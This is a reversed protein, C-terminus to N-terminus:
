EVSKLAEIMDVKKLHGHMYVAVVISFVLTIAGSYVYSLPKIERGFMVLDIEATQIIFQSLFYGGFLGVAIGMLTLILNERFIYGDVETDYFGMVKLTAIERIRETININTLNYLVVFALAGACIILIAVVSNLADLMTAMTVVLDDKFNISLVANTELLRSAFEDQEEKTLEGERGGFAMINPEPAEGFIDEYLGKSMYVYHNPYCEVCASVNVNKIDTEEQYVEMGDGASIGLLMSLKEDILVRDEEFEYPEHTTRSRFTYYELFEEKNDPVILYARYTKGNARVSLQKQLYRTSKYGNEEVVSIINNTDSEDVSDYAFFGDYLNLEEYQKNIIDSISNELAFGVLTLATCGAIGVVTMFMRRKYRFLNRATVKSNFGVKKWIPLRDLLIKKGARPAKPRMLQAPQESLENKCAMYVTFAVAAASVLMCVATLLWDTPIHIVHISYLMGYASIIAFPFLKQGILAGFLAGLITASLAYFMFKFIIQGNTYGLAKLTGIQSRQEEVMRTMTTLCVLAAVLIFFVPFVSAINNIRDANEGYEAYGINGSRDFVYWKPASLEKLERKADNIKKEGDSIEKEADSKAQEYEALGDEYEAKGEEYKQKGEIYDKEGRDIDLIGQSYQKEGEELAARSDLLRQEGESKKQALTQKAENLQKRGNDLQRRAEGLEAESADLQEKSAELRAGVTDLITDAREMAQQQAELEEKPPLKNLLAGIEEPSATGNMVGQLEEESPLNGLIQMIEEESPFSGLIDGIGQMPDPAETGEAPSFGLSNEAFNARAPPAAAAGAGALDYIFSYQEMVALYQKGADLQEKMQRYQSLGQNYEALGNSYLEYGENYQKESDDLLESQEELQKKADGIERDFTEQGKRLEEWGDDLQKRSDELEKKGDQIKKDADTLEKEADDLEKKADNLEKEADSLKEDAERRGDELEKEAKSLEGEAEAIIEDYREIERNEGLKEVVSQLKEAEDDYKESYAAQSKLVESTLYVETYVDTLFNEESVYIITSINGNGITTNGRSSKDIYMPSVFTGVVTYETVSLTDSLPDDTGSLMEIKDGVSRRTVLAGSDIICEDAKEPFRGEALELSNVEPNKGYEPLSMVRAALEQDGSKIMVDAFYGPYVEIGSLGKLAEIDNESFGMTSVLRFHSLNSDKYYIDASGRMDPATNKVGAFFAIGIAVILFISLFRSKTKFIEMFTNKRLASKM